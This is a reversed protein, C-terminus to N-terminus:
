QSLSRCYVYFRTKVTVNRQLYWLVTVYFGRLALNRCTNSSIVYPYMTARLFTSGEMKFTPVVLLCHRRILINECQQM